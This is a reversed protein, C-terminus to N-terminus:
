AKGGELAATIAALAVHILTWEETNVGGKFALFAGLAGRVQRLAAEAKFARENAGTLIVIEQRCCEIEQRLREVEARLADREKCCEKWGHYEPRRSDYTKADM